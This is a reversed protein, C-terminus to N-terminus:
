LDPSYKTHKDSNRKYAEKRNDKSNKILAEVPRYFRRNRFVSISFKDRGLRNINRLIEDKSIHSRLTHIFVYFLCLINFLRFYEDVTKYSPLGLIPPEFIILYSIFVSFIIAAYTISWRSDKPTKSKSFFYTIALFVFAYSQTFLQLWRIEEVFLFSDFFLVLGSFLYSVGLFAFGLPLGIYRAERTLRYPAIIYKLLIFCLLASIIEILILVPNEM